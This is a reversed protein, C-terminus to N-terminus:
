THFRHLNMVINVIWKMVDNCVTEEPSRGNVNSQGWTIDESRLKQCFTQVVIKKRGHMDYERGTYDKKSNIM